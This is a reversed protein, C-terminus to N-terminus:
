ILKRAGSSYNRGGIIGQRFSEAGRFVHSWLSVIMGTQLLSLAEIVCSEGSGLERLFESIRAENSVQAWRAYSSLFGPQM